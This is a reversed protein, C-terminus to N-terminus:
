QEKAAPASLISELKGISWNLEKRFQKDCHWTADTLVDKAFMLGSRYEDCAKQLEALEQENM